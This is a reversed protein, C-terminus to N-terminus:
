APPLIADIEATVAQIDAPSPDSPKAVLQKYATELRAIAAKLADFEASMNPAGEIIITVTIV